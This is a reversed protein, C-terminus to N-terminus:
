YCNITKFFWPIFRGDQSTMGAFAPIWPKNKQEPNGNERSHRRLEILLPVKKLPSYQYLSEIERWRREFL